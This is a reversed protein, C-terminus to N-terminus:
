CTYLKFGMKERLICDESKRVTGCGLPFKAVFASSDQTHGRSEREGLAGFSM